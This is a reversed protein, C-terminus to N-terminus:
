RAASIEPLLRGQLRPFLMVLHALIGISAFLGIGMSAGIDVDRSTAVLMAVILAPFFLRAWRQHSADPVTFFFVEVLVVVFCFPISQAQWPPYICIMAAVLCVFSLWALGHSYGSGGPSSARGTFSMILALGWIALMAGFSILGSGMRVAEAGDFTKTGHEAGGSTKSRWEFAYHHQRVADWGVWVIAGALLFLM